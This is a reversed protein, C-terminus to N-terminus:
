MPLKSLHHYVNQSNLTYFMSKTKTQTRKRTM